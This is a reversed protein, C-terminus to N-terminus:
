FYFYNSKKRKKFNFFVLLSCRYMGVYLFKLYITTIQNSFYFIVIIFSSACAYIICGCICTFLAM